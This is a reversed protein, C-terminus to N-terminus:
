PFNCKQISMHIYKRLYSGCHQTKKKANGIRLKRLVGVWGRMLKGSESQQGFFIFNMEGMKSIGRVHPLVGGM